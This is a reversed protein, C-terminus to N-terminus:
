DNDASLACRFGVSHSKYDPANKGRQSCRLGNKDNIWSGGRFVRYLGEAPGTPNQSPADKYYDEGYWDRCWEWVNGAMDYIGIGNPKYSGVPNIKKSRLYGKDFNAQHLELDNGFPYKQSILGGRAAKEWEAETPLRKGAWAAYASADNWSVLTVPYNEQGEPFSTGQWNFPQAWEQNVQPAPRGTQLIFQRYERNTVEYRDIYFAKLYVKHIPKEDSKAEDDTSGMFFEGDAIFVMNSVPSKQQAHKDESPNDANSCSSLFATHLLLISVFLIVSLWRYKKRAIFCM